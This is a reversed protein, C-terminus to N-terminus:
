VFGLLGPFRDITQIEGTRSRNTSSPRAEFSAGESNRSISHIQLTIPGKIPATLDSALFERYKLTPKTAIGGASVIADIETPLVDGLDGWEVRVVQELSAESKLAVIRMPFYEFTAMTPPSADDIAASFGAPDQYQIYYSQSMDAHAIEITELRIEDRTGGLFYDSYDSM